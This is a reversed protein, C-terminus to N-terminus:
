PTLATMKMRHVTAMRQVSQGPCMHDSLAKEMHKKKRKERQWFFRRVGVLSINSNLGSM